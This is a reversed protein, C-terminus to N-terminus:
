DDTRENTDSQILSNTVRQIREDDWDPHRARVAARVDDRSLTGRDVAPENRDRLWGPSARSDALTLVVAISLAGAFVIGLPSNQLSLRLAVLPPVATTHSVDLLVHDHQGVLGALFAGNNGRELMSNLFVSPDSVTVVTGRGVRETTLVPRAALEEADDLEGDRDGDLYSFSSSNALTTANGPDVVSGHNLVLTDVGATTPRSANASAKPFAPSPGARQEDRLPRGDIRATAGVAELLENGGRGYDEAVLLTGGARVYSRIAEAEPGYPEDPSLVVALTRNAPVTAYASVNRAVTTPTDASEAAARVQSTGDWDTNYAGLSASSTGAAVVLTLGVAVALAGLLLRPLSWDGGM